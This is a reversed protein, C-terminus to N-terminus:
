QNILEDLEYIDEFKNVLTSGGIWRPHEISPNENQQQQQQEQEEVM